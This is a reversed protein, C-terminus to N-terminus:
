GAAAIIAPAVKVAAESTKENSKIAETALAQFVDMAKNSLEKSTAMADKARDVTRGETQGILEQLAKVTPNDSVKSDTLGAAKAILDNVITAASPTDGTNISIISPIASGPAGPKGSDSPNVPSGFQVGAIPSAVNPAPSDKWNWFRTLDIKECSNCKGLVGEGLMGHTPLTIMSPTARFSMMQRELLLNTLNGHNLNLGQMPVSGGAEQPAQRPSEDIPLTIPFIALNGEIGLLQNAVCNLLPVSLLGDDDANKPDKNTFRISYRELLIAWEDRTFSEWVARSYRVRNNKVYRYLAEVDKLDDKSVALPISTADLQVMTQDATSIPLSTTNLIPYTTGKVHVSVQAAFLRPPGCKAIDGADVKQSLSSFYKLADQDLKLPGLSQIPIGSKLKIELTSVPKVSIVLATLQQYSVGAPMKIQVSPMTNQSSAQRVQRLTDLFMQLSEPQDLETRAPVPVFVEASIATGVTDTADKKYLVNVSLQDQPIFGGTISVTLTRDDQPLANGATPPELRLHRLIELANRYQRVDPTISAIADLYQILPDYRNLLLAYFDAPTSQATGGDQFYPLELLQNEATFTLLNLPILCVLQLGSIENQISIQRLVEWYQITLAHCHNYNAVSKTVISQREDQSAIRILTRTSSRVASAARSISASLRQAAASAYDRSLNQQAGFSGSTTTEAASSASSSGGFLGGLLGPSSSGGGGVTRSSGTYESAQQAAERFAAGFIATSSSDSSSTAQQNESAQTGEKESFSSSQQIERIALMQSEGPALPLSYLLDGLTLGGQRWVQKCQLIYGLGLTGAIPLPDKSIGSLQRKFAVIDIPAVIDQRESASTTQIATMKAEVAALHHGLAKLAEGAKAALNTVGDEIAKIADSAFKPDAAAVFAGGPMFSLVKKALGELFATQAPIDVPDQDVKTATVPQDTPPTPTARTFLSIASVAPEVLRFLVGFPFEEIPGAQSYFQEGCGTEGLGLTQQQAASEITRHFQDFMSLASASRLIRTESDTFPNLQVNLVFPGLLGDLLEFGCVSFTATPENKALVDFFVREPLPFRPVALAFGGRDDTLSSPKPWPVAGMPSFGKPEDAAYIPRRVIVLVGAAPSHDVNFLQGTIVSPMLPTTKPAAPNLRDWVEWLRDNFQNGIDAM